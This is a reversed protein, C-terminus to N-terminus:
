RLLESKLPGRKAAKRLEVIWNANTSIIMVELDERFTLRGSLSAHILM